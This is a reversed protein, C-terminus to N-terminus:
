PLTVLMETFARVASDTSVTLECTVDMRAARCSTVAAVASKEIKLGLEIWDATSAVVEVNVSSSPATAPIESSTPPIPTMFMM